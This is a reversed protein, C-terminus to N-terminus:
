APGAHSQGSRHNLGGHVVEVQAVGISGSGRLTEETAGMVRQECLDERSHRQWGSRRASSRVRGLRRAQAGHRRLPPPRFM